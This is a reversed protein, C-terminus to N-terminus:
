ASQALAPREREARRRVALVTSTRFSAMRESWSDVVPRRDRTKFFTTMPGELQYTDADDVREERGDDFRVEFTTVL